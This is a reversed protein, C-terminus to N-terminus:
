VVCIVELVRLEIIAVNLHTPNILAAYRLSRQTLVKTFYVSGSYVYRGIM